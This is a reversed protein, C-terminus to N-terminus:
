ENYNLMSVGNSVVNDNDDLVEWVVNDSTLDRDFTLERDDADADLQAMEEITMNDDYCDIDPEYEIVITRILRIKNAM